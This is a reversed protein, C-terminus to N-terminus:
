KTQLRIHRREEPTLALGIRRESEGLGYGAWTDSFEVGVELARRVTAVAAADSVRDGGIAAGGLGCPRVEFGARRLRRPGLAQQLPSALRPPSPAFEAM